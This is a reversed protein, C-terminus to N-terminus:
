GRRNVSGLVAAGILIGIGLAVGVTLLPRDEVEASVRALADNGYGAGLNLARNGLRAAQDSAAEGRDRVREIMDSLAAAITDGIRAGAATAAASGRRGAIRGIKELEKEVAGLHNSIANVSPAFSDSRYQFM